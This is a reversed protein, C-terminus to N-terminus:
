KRRSGKRSKLFDNTLLWILFQFWRLIYYLVKKENIKEGSNRGFVVEYNPSSRKKDVKKLDEIFEAGLHRLYQQACNRKLNLSIDCIVVKEASRSSKLQCRTRSM